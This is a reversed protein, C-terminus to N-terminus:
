GETQDLPLTVFREIGPDSVDVQQDPKLREPQGGKAKRYIAFGTPPLKGALILLETATMLQKPTEYVHKDIQVKYMQPPKGHGDRKEESGMM